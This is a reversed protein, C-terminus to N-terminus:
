NKGAKALSENNLYFRKYEIFKDIDFNGTRLGPDKKEDTRIGLRIARKGSIDEHGYYYPEGLKKELMACIRGLAKYQNETYGSTNSGMLAIGVSFRNADARNDPTISEGAHYAVYAPDVMWKYKGNRAIVAHYSKGVDDVEKICTYLNKIPEKEYNKIYGIKSTNHIVITDIKTRFDRRACNKSLNHNIFITEFYRQREYSCVSAGLFVFLAALTLIKKIKM